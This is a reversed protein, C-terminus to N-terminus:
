LDELATTNWGTIPVTFNVSLASASVVVLNGNNPTTNSVQSFNDAFYIKTADTATAAICWGVADVANNGFHGVIPSINATTTSAALKTSDITVNVLPITALVATTTGTTFFTSGILQNGNRRLRMGITGTITGFGTTTTTIDQSWEELSVPAGRINIFSGFTVPSLANAYFAGVLKWGTFGTPGTSNVNASIRLAPIGSSIVAYVMYLNNAVMTVDTAITRTLISTVYQQGGITLTSVPLTIIGGSQSLVGIKDAIMRQGM